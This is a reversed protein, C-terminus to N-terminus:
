RFKILVKDHDRIIKNVESLRQRAPEFTPNYYLAKEFAARAEFLSGTKLSLLGKMFYVSWRTIDGNFHVIARELYDRARGADKLINLYLRSAYLCYASNYPDLELAKLLHREAERPQRLAMKYQFHAREALLPKIGTFWAVGIFAVLVLVSVASGTLSKKWGNSEKLLAHNRLYIGEMLGMMVATMFLTCNVRFPFFFVASLMIGSVSCFAAAAVIRDREAAGERRIVLWGHRMVVFFFVSLALGALIGGDNLIELYENHVRRPKPEPYNKFYNEDVLSLEAQAEYVMNRYSWLGTGFLPNRKILWWSPPSYKKIRLKLTNSRTVDRFGMMAHFRDPAAYWLVVLITLSALGYAVFRGPNSRLHHRIRIKHIKKILILFAMFAVFFGFWGARARSFLLAGFMLILLGIPVLRWKGRLLFICSATAFLPFILYVGLYNSNGITGMVNMDPSAWKILIFHNFFQLYVILSVLCGSFAAIGMLWSGKKGDLCLSAFYFCLLCSINLTAAITTFYYNKTYFFSFFNLGILFLLIAQTPGAAKPVKQGRLFGCVYIVMMLCVGVTILVTKPTNFVNDVIGPLVLVPVLLTLAFIVVLYPISKSDM